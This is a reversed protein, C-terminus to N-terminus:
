WFPRSRILLCLLRFDWLIWYNHRINSGLICLIVSIIILILCHLRIYTFTINGPAVASHLGNAKGAVFEQAKVVGDAVGLFIDLLLMVDLFQLIPYFDNLLLRVPM